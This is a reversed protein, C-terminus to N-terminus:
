DRDAREIIPQWFRRVNRKDFGHCAFPLRGGHIELALQPRRDICFGVAERYDPIRMGPYRGPAVLSFYKDEVHLNDPGPHALLHEIHPRQEETIRIMTAVKRLSFGGNGVKFYHAEQKAQRRFLNGLCQLGANGRNRASAIWPAGIYDYDRASWSELQDSFVFADTQCVLLQAYAEFRRYFGPSLLLRNYGDIGAFFRPEFREVDPRAPGLVPDLPALDLDDPCVIALPHQGLV